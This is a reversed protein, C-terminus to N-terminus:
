CVPAGPLDEALFTLEFFVRNAIKLADPTIRFGSDTKTLLKKELLNKLRENVIQVVPPSFKERLSILELGRMKRLQTHLFDTLAENLKLPEKQKEPLLDLFHQGDLPSFANQKLYENANSSNWFRTGYEGENKLFSHSSIGIGWYSEDTWYILNHSSERGPKAFNSIEYRQLGAAGLRTQILDFMEAQTEEPARNENMQHGEPVNMIYTSVHPPAFSILEDLDRNLDELYQQPLGFLLDFSYNLDHKQLFRLTRRSDEASHERGCLKLLADNFTQVGVSFRNVGAARYLDLKKDDITGPNIEITIEAGNQIQFGLNSIKKVIALIDEAPLLSPTGGGFYISQVDRQQIASHRLELERLLSATYKQMTISHDLSFTTFDCYHCKQLCYPIHVYIGLSM